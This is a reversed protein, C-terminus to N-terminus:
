TVLTENKATVPENEKDSHEPWGQTDGVVCGIPVPLQKDPLLTTSSHFKCGVCALLLMWLLICFIHLKIEVDGISRWPMRSLLM